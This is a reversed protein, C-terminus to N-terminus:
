LPGNHDVIRGDAHEVATGVEAVLVRDADLRDQVAVAPGLAM